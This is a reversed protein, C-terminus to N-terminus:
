WTFIVGTQFAVGHVYFLNEYQEGMKIKLQNIFIARDNLKFENILRFFLPGINESAFEDFNGFGAGILMDETNYLYGTLSYLMINERGLSHDDFYARRVLHGINGSIYRWDLSAFPGFSHTSSDYKPLGNYVYVANISLPVTEYFPLRYGVSGFINIDPTDWMEGAYFAGKFTFHDNLEFGGFLIFDWHYQLSVNHEPRFLLGAEAKTLKPTFSYINASILLFISIIILKKVHLRM